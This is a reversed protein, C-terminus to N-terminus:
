RSFGNLFEVGIGKPEGKKVWRIICRFTKASPDSGIMLDLEILDGAKFPLNTELFVGGQSINKVTGKISRRTVEVTVHRFSANLDAEHRPHRRRNQSEEM